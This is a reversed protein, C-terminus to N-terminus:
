YKLQRSKFWLSCSKMIANCYKNRTIRRILLSSTEIIPNNSADFFFLISSKKWIVRSVINKKRNWDQYIWVDPRDWIGIWGVLDSNGYNLPIRHNSPFRRFITTCIVHLGLEKRSKVSRQSSIQSQDIWTGSRPDCGSRQVTSNMSWLLKMVRM